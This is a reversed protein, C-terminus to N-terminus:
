VEFEDRPRQGSLVARNLSDPFADEFHRIRYPPETGVITIIDFRIPCYDLSNMHLYARAAEVINRRKSPTVALEAPMFQENRRSKVEVFVLTGWYQAIIDMELHSVQFNRELLNYGQKVLYRCAEDEGERGLENHAAM